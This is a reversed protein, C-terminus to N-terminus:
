SLRERQLKEVRKYISEVQDIEPARVYYWSERLRSWM